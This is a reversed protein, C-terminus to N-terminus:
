ICVGGACTPNGPCCDTNGNCATGGCNDSLGAIAPQIEITSLVPLAVGAVKGLSRLMERRSLDKPLVGAINFASDLLEAQNLQDLAVWVTEESVDQFGANRLANLLKVDDSDGDCAQWVTTTVANLCSAKNSLRDFVVTEDGITTISLDNKRAKPGTKQTM